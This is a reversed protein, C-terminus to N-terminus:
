ESRFLDRIRDVINHNVDDVEKISFIVDTNIKIFPRINKKSVIIQKVYCGDIDYNLDLVVNGNSDENGLKYVQEVITFYKSDVEVVNNNDIFDGINVVQEDDDVWMTMGEEGCIPCKETGCPLLMEIDCNCCRVYDAYEGYEFDTFMYVRKDGM